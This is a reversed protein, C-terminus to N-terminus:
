SNLPQLLQEFLIHNDGFTLVRFVAEEEQKGDSDPLCIDGNWSVRIKVRVKSPGFNLDYERRAVEEATSNM